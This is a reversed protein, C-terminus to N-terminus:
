PHWSRPDGEFPRVPPDFLYARLAPISRFGKGGCFQSTELMPALRKRTLRLWTKSDLPTERLSQSRSEPRIEPIAKNESGREGVERPHETSTAELM